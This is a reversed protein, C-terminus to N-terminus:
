GDETAILSDVMAGGANVDPLFFATKMGLNYDYGQKHMPELLVKCNQKEVELLTINPSKSKEIRIFVREYNYLYLDPRQVSVVKGM